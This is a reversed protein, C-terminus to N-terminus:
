EAYIFQLVVEIDPHLSHHVPCTHAAEELVIRKDVPVGAPVYIAVALKGVRRPNLSMTKEIEATTGEMAIKHKRAARQLSSIDTGM